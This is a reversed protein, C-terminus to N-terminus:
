HKWLIFFFFPWGFMNLLLHLLLLAPYASHFEFVVEHLGAPIRVMQFNPPIRDIKGKKGDIFVNWNRHFNELRLLCTDQMAGIAVAARSPNSSPHYVLAGANGADRIMAERNHDILDIGSISRFSRDKIFLRVKRCGVPAPLDCTFPQGRELAPAKLPMVDTWAGNDGAAQLMASPGHWLEDSDQRPHIRISELDITFPFSLEIWDEEKTGDTRWYTDETFDVTNLGGCESSDESSVKIGTFFELPFNALKLPYFERESLRDVAEARLLIFINGKMGVRSPLGTRYVFDAFDKQMLFVYAPQPHAWVITKRTVPRVEFPLGTRSSNFTLWSGNHDCTSVWTDPYDFDVFHAVTVPSLSKSEAASYFGLDLAHLIILGAMPLAIKGLLRNNQLAAWALIVWGSFLAAPRLIGTVKGTALCLLLGATLFLLKPRAKLAPNFIGKLGYLCIFLYMFSAPRSFMFVQRTMSLLPLHSVIWPWVATSLGLGFVFIAIGAFIFTRSAAITLGYPFLLATMIGLYFPWHTSFIDTNLNNADILNLYSKLPVNVPAPIRRLTESTFAAGRAMARSPSVYDQMERFSYIAPSAAALFVGFCLLAGTLRVPALLKKLRPIIRRGYFILSGTFLVLLVLFNYSPLYQNVSIGYLLSFLFLYGFRGTRYFRLALFILYPLVGSILMTVGEGLDAPFAGGFLIALVAFLTLWKKRLLEQVLLAIGSVFIFFLGLWALNFFTIQGLNIKFFHLIASFILVPSWLYYNSYLSMPIGGSLYPNWEFSKGSAIWHDAISFWLQPHQFADHWAGVKGFLFDRYIILFLFYLGLISVVFLRSRSYLYIPLVAFLVIPIILFIEM